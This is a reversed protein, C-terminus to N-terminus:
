SVTRRRRDARQGDPTAAFGARFRFLRAAHVGLKGDDPKAEAGTRDGVGAGPIDLTVQMGAPDSALDRVRAQQEFMLGDIGRAPARARGVPRETIGARWHDIHVAAPKWRPRWSQTARRELLGM